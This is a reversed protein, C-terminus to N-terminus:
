VYRDETVTAGPSAHSLPTGHDLGEDEVNKDQLNPAIDMNEDQLNPGINLYDQLNPLNPGVYLNLGAPSESNEDQLNPGIHVNEDQFNLADYQNEDQLNPGINLNEDQLNPGIDADVNEAVAVGIAQFFDDCQVGGVTTRPTGYANTSFYCPLTEFKSYDPSSGAHTM